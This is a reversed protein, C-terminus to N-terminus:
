TKPKKPASLLNFLDDIEDEDTPKKRKKSGESSSSTEKLYDAKRKDKKEKHQPPQSTRSAPSLLDFLDTSEPRSSAKNKKKDKYKDKHKEKLDTPNPTKFVPPPGPAAPKKTMRVEDIKSKPTPTSAVPEARAVKPTSDQKKAPTSTPPIYVLSQPIESSFELEEGLDDDSTTHLARNLDDLAKQNKSAPHEEEQWNLLKLSEL